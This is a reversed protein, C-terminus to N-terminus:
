SGRRNGAGPHCGSVPPVATFLPSCLSSLPSVSSLSGRGKHTSSPLPLRLPPPLLLLLLPLLLLPCRWSDCIRKARSTLPPSIDFYKFLNWPLSNLPPHPAPHPTPTLLLSPIHPPLAGTVPTCSPPPSLPTTPPLSTPNQHNPPTLVPDLPSLCRPPPPSSLPPLLSPLHVTPLPCLAPRPKSSPRSAKLPVRISVLYHYHAPHPWKRLVTGAILINTLHIAWRDEGTREKGSCNVQSYVKFSLRM